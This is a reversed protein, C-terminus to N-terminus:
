WPRNSAPRPLATAAPDELGAPAALQNLGHVVQTIRNRREQSVVALDTKFYTHRDSREALPQCEQEWPCPLSAM